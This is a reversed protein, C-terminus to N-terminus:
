VWTVCAVKDDAEKFRMLRVGQTDRGLESVTKYPLRIVQGNSSIIILDRDLMADKSVVFANVIKGTKSTVKATKIGSGGRGQVKYNGISTRKGFGKEMITLVQYKRTSEKDTKIIGMGVLLDDKKLRVGAVGSANRGMDRVDTEKFRIAQGQATIIQIHDSGSTPKAWILRDNEKIKIAILGSRRVNDFASIEVKKVVGRETAFFLYKSGEIKDLPLISTINEDGSLQLFNV